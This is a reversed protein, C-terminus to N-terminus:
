WAFLGMSSPSQYPYLAGVAAFEHWAGLHLKGIATALIQALIGAPPAWLMALGILDYSALDLWAIDPGRVKKGGANTKSKRSKGIDDEFVEENRDPTDFQEEEFDSDDLSDGM